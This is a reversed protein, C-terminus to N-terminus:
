RPGGDRVHATTVHWRATHVHCLTHKDQMTCTHTNTQCAAQHRTHAHARTDGWSLSSKSFADRGCVARQATSHQATSHQTTSHQATHMHYAAGCLRLRDTAQVRASLHSQTACWGLQWLLAGWKGNLRARGPALLAHLCHRHGGHHATGHAQAQMPASCDLSPRALTHHTAHTLGQQQQPLLLAAVALLPLLLLPLSIGCPTLVGCGTSVQQPTACAPSPRGQHRQNTTSTCGQHRQHTTETADWAAHCPVSARTV